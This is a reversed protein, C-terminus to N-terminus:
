IADSEWLLLVNLIKGFYPNWIYSELEIYHLKLNLLLIIIAKLENAYLLDELNLFWYHLHNLDFM